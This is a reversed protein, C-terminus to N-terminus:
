TRAYQSEQIQSKNNAARNLPEMLWLSWPQIWMGQLKCQPSAPRQYMGTDCDTITHSNNFISSSCSHSPERIHTSRSRAQLLTVHFLRSHNHLSFFAHSRRIDHTITSLRYCAWKSDAHPITHASRLPHNVHKQQAWPWSSRHLRRLDPWTLDTWTQTIVQCLSQPRCPWM